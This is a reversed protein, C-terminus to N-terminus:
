SGGDEYPSVTVTEDDTVTVEVTREHGDHCVTIEYDGHFVSEAFRGASGTEGREESWWEGFVLDTYVDYVPKPSWDEYFLPADDQWHDGDWFGWMLFDTTDPHSFVTKLFGHFWKAKAEEDWEPDAMDFETIRLDVGYEAYRDLGEITEAPTLAEGESFHSQMGAGGLDIGEDLLFEIQREYQQRTEEYPGALTNYDNVDLAVGDPAAEAAARYWEALVPAELPDVDEGDIAEIMEPEHIAENVVDWQVIDDDYHDIIREVHDFSREEVYKPDPEPDTVGGDEWEVGMASVVDPPVAWADVNAWLAAHGRLDLGQELIWETAGDALEQNDEFFRWKHHNELVATNFLEAVYERYDDGPETRELLTQANVAVGFGYEHDSMAVEVQVGELPEDDDGVVEVELDAMRHNAIREDAATEWGDDMAAVATTARDTPRVAGAPVSSAGLLGTTAALQLYRRRDIGDDPDM